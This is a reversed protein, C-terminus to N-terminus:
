PFRTDAPRTLPCGRCCHRATPLRLVSEIAPALTLPYWGASPAGHAPRNSTTTAPPGLACSLGAAGWVQRGTAAWAGAMPRCCQLPPLKPFLWALWDHRVSALFGDLLRQLGSAGDVLIPRGWPWQFPELISGAARDGWASAPALRPPGARVSHGAVGHRFWRLCRLVGSWLSM